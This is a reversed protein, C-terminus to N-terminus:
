RLLDKGKQTVAYAVGRTGDTNIVFAKGDPVGVLEEKRLVEYLMESGMVDRAASHSAIGGHLLFWAIAERKTM